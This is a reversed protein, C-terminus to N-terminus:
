ARDVADTRDEQKLLAQLRDRALKLAIHRNFDYAWHCALGKNRERILHRKVIKLWQRKLGAESMEIFAPDRGTLRLLLLDIQDRTQDGARASEYRRKASQGTGYQM